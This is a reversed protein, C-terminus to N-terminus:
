CSASNYPVADEVDGFRCVVPIIIIITFGNYPVGGEANRM